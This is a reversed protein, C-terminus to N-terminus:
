FPIYLLRWRTDGADGDEGERRERGILGGLISWRSGETDRSGGALGWLLEWARRDRIPDDIERYIRWIRSYFADFGPPDVFPLPDLANWTRVGDVRHHYRMLPWLRVFTESRPDEHAQIETHRYFPFFWRARRSYEGEITSERGFLPWLLFDRRYTGNELHGFLPYVDYQVLEDEEWSFRLLPFLYISSRDRDRIRDGGLFPWAVSWRELNRSKVRGYFPWFWRVSTPSDTEMNNTHWHIFPWLLSKRDYRPNGEPTYGRYHSYLPWLRWGRVREGGTVNFIPWLVHHSERGRDRVHAYLPFLAFDIRELGLIGKATGGVPFVAFYSGEEHDNGWYIPIFLNQTDVQGDDHTYRWRFYVPLVRTRRENADLKDRYIPWLARTEVKSETVTRSLLPWLHIDRLATGTGEIDVKEGREYFPAVGRSGDIPSVCGTLISLLPLCLALLIPVLATEARSRHPGHDM